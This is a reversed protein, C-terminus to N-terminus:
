VMLDRVIKGMDIDRPRSELLIDATEHLIGWTNWLILLGILVSVLPDLWNIRTFAIIVGALVAGIASIIEGMLYIFASRM